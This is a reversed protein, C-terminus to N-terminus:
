GVPIRKDRNQDFAGVGTRLGAVGVTSRARDTNMGSIRCRRFALCGKLTTSVATFPRLTSWSFWPVHQEVANLSRIKRSQRVM